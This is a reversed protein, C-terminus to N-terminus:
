SEWAVKERDSWWCLGKPYWFWWCGRGSLSKSGRGLLSRDGVSSFVRSSMLESPQLEKFPLFVSLGLIWFPRQEWRCFGLGHETELYRPLFCVGPHTGGTPVRMKRKQNLQANTLTSLNNVKRFVSFILCLIKLLGGQFCQNVGMRKKKKQVRGKETLVEM